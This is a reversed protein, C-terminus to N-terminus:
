DIYIIYYPRLFYISMLIPPLSANVVIQPIPTTPAVSPVSPLIISASKVIQTVPFAYMQTPINM